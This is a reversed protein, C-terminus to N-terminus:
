IFRGETCPEQARGFSPYPAQCRAGCESIGGPAWPKAAPGGNRGAARFLGAALLAKGATAKDHTWILNKAKVVVVTLREATPLYSLSLLIEGVADAVQFVPPESPKQRQSKLPDLSLCSSREENLLQQEQPGKCWPVLGVPNLFIGGGGSTSYVGDLGGEWRIHAQGPLLALPPRGFATIDGTWALPLM